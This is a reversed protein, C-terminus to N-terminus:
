SPTLPCLLFGAIFTILTGSVFILIPCFCYKFYLSLSFINTWNERQLFYLFHEEPLLLFIQSLPHSICFSKLSLTPLTFSLHIRSDLFYQNNLIIFDPKCYINFCFVCHYHRTLKSFVTFTRISKLKKFLHYFTGISM